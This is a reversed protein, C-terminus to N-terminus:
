ASAPFLEVTSAKAPEKDGNIAKGVTAVFHLLDDGSARSRLAARQFRDWDEAHLCQELLEYMASLGELDNADIGSKALHAFRLLAIYGVKDATRFTEDAFQVEAM